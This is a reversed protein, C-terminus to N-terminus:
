ENFGYRDEAKARADKAAVLDDFFGIHILKGIVRIQAHWKNINKNWYVGKVGSKNRNTISMNRGNIVFNADRLNDWKNNHRVRDRHDVQGTPLSGTVYLFALRHARYQKNDISIYVYGDKRGNSGAVNGAMANHSRNARWTFVGTSQNYDLLELLRDHTIM